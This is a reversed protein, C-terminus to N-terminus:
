ETMLQHYERQHQVMKHFVKYKRHYYEQELTEPRVVKGTRSMRTMAEQVSSFDSSACAGLIAAGLLVSEPEKPLVVPLGTANAHIQVFVPNKSLGGCAILTSIEHGAQELADIIHRTGLAIAQITALYMVCLNDTDTSLTLGCVMGKLSSDAIPSRNGHFDPWVHFDKTLQGLSTMPNTEALAALQDNLVAYINSNSQEAQQKMQQYAPHTTIVHDILKGTASQGGENLWYGPVMASYYPGWVGDVFIAKESIAMHCTSTGCIVALRSTIPQNECPLNHGKVDCAIVGVGGAHADILSTAVPTGAPLGLQSAAMESLGNGVPKGPSQVDSGIKSYSNEILDELGIQQLFSDSWGQSTEDAQYMWKCVVSCLSRTLSGTAKWTLFDPLELFHGAKDWCQSPLNQKLWLLKPPEQELSITGGVFKLVEHKVSNIFDAQKGARHDMWM